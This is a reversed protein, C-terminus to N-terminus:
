FAAAALLPAAFAVAGLVLSPGLKSKLVKADVETGALFTLLIGGFQALFDLWPAGTIGFANGAVVGAAIEIIAVSLAAEVAIASAGFVLLALLTAVALTNMTGGSHPPPRFSVVGVAM